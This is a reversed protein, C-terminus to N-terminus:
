YVTGYLSCCLLVDASIYKVYLILQWLPPSANKHSRWVCKLTCYEELACMCKFLCYPFFPFVFLAKPSGQQWQCKVTNLAEAPWQTRNKIRQAQQVFEYLRMCPWDPQQVSTIVIGFKWIVWQLPLVLPTYVWPWVSSLCKLRLM